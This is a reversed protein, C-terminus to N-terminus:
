NIELIKFRCARKEGGYEVVGTIDAYRITEDLTRNIDIDWTQATHEALDDFLKIGVKKPINDSETNPYFLVGTTYNRVVDSGGWCLMATRVDYDKVLVNFPAGIIYGTLDHMLNYVDAVPANYMVQNKFTEEFSGITGAIIGRNEKTPSVTLVKNRVLRVNYDGTTGNLEGSITKYSIAGYPTGLGITACKLDIDLREIIIDIGQSQTRVWFEMGLFTKRRQLKVDFGISSYFGVNFTYFRAKIRVSENFYHYGTGTNEETETPIEDLPYPYPYQDNEANVTPARVVFEKINVCEAYYAGFQDAYGNTEEEEEDIPDDPDIPEEPDTPDEPDIPSIPNTPDVLEFENDPNPIIQVDRYFYRGEGVYTLYEFNSNLVVDTHYTEIIEEMLAINDYSMIFVGDTTIQYVTDAVVIRLDSDLVYELREDVLLEDIIYDRFEEETMEPVILDDNYDIPQGIVPTVRTERDARIRAISNFIRDSNSRTGESKGVYRDVIAIGNTPNQIIENMCQDFASQSEFKLIGEKTLNVPTERSIQPNVDETFDKQCGCFVIGAALIAFIKEM